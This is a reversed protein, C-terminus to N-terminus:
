RYVHAINEPSRLAIATSDHCQETALSFNNTYTMSQSPLAFRGAITESIEFWKMKLGRYGLIPLHPWHTLDTPSTLPHSWHTFDTPSTLPHLWHTFDTPLTLPYLWHTFDTPSTLPHLRHTFDTPSTLPHPWHTLDLNRSWRIFHIIFSDYIMCQWLLSLHLWRTRHCHLIWVAFIDNRMKPKGSDILWSM